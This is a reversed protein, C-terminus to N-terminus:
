ISIPFMGSLHRQRWFIKRELLRTRLNPDMHVATDYAQQLTMVDAEVLARALQRDDDKEPARKVKEKTATLNGM